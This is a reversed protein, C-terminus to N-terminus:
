IAKSPHPEHSARLCDSGQLAPKLDEVRQAGIGDCGEIAVRIGFGVSSRMRWVSPRAPWGMLRRQGM